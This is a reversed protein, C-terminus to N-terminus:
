RAVRVIILEDKLNTIINVDDNNSEYDSWSNDNNTSDDRHVSDNDGLDSDSDDEVVGDETHM